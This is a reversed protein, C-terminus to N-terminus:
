DLAFLIGYYGMYSFSADIKHTVLLFCSSGCQGQLSRSHHTAYTEKRFTKKQLYMLGVIHNQITCAKSNRKISIRQNNLLPFTTHHNRAGRDPLM